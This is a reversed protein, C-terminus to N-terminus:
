HWLKLIAGVMGGGLIPGLFTVTWGIGQMRSMQGSIVKLDAAMAKMTESLATGERTLRGALETSDRELRDNLELHVRDHDHHRAEHDRFRQDVQALIGAADMASPVGRQGRGFM